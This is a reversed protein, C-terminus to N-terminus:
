KYKFNLMLMENLLFKLKMTVSPLNKTYIQKM